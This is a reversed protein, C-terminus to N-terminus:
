ITPYVTKQNHTHMDDSWKLTILHKSKSGIHIAAILEVSQHQELVEM